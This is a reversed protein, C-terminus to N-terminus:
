LTPCPNDDLELVTEDRWFSAVYGISTVGWEQRMWRWVRAVKLRRGMEISKGIRSM